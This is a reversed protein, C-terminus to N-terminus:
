AKKTSGAKTAASRASLEDPDPIKKVDIDSAPYVNWTVEDLEGAAGEPTPLYEVTTFRGVVYQGRNPMKVRLWFSGKEATTQETVMLEHAALFEADPAVTFAYAEGGPLGPLTTKNADTVCTADVTEPDPFFNPLNRICHNLPKWTPPDETPETASFEAWEVIYSKIISAM